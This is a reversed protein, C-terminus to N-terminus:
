QFFSDLPAYINHSYFQIQRQHVQLVLRELHNLATARGVLPIVKREIKAIDKRPLKLIETVLYYARREPDSPSIGAREYLRTLPAYDLPCYSEVDQRTWANPNRPKPM